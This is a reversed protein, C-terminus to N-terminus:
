VTQHYLSTCRGGPPLLQVRRCSPQKAPDSQESEHVAADFVKQVSRRSLTAAWPLRSPAGPTEQLGHQCLRVGLRPPHGSQQSIWLNPFRNDNYCHKWSSETIQKFCGLQPYLPTGQHGDAESSDWIRSNWMPPVLLLSPGSFRVRWQRQFTLDSGHFMLTCRDWVGSDSDCFIHFVDLAILVLMPRSPVESSTSKEHAPASLRAGPEMRTSKLCKKWTCVREARPHKGLSTNKECITFLSLCKTPNYKNKRHAFNDKKMVRAEVSPCYTSISVICVFHPLNVFLALLFKGQSCVCDYIQLCCIDPILGKLSKRIRSVIFIM